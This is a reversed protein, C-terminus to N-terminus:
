KKRGSLKTIAENIDKLIAEKKMNPYKLCANNDVFKAEYGKNINEKYFKYTTSPNIFRYVAWEDIIKIRLREIVGEPIVSNLGGKLKVDIFLSDDEKM